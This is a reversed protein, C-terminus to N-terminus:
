GNYELFTFVARSTDKLVLSCSKYLRDSFPNLVCVISYLLVLNLDESHWGRTPHVQYFTNIRGSSQNEQRIVSSINNGM